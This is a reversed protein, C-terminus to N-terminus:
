SRSEQGDREPLKGPVAEDYKRVKGRRVRPEPAQVSGLGLMSLLFPLNRWLNNLVTSVSKRDAGMLEIRLTAVEPDMTIRAQIGKMVRSYEELSAESITAMKAAQKPEIRVAGDLVELTVADGKGLNWEQIVENPLTVVLSGGMKMLPRDLRLKRTEKQQRSM